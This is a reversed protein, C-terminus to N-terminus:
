KIFQKFFRLEDLNCKEALSDKQNIHFVHERPETESGYDHFEHDIGKESLFKDLEVSQQRVMDHNATMVYLPLIKDTIYNEVKSLDVTAEDQHTAFYLGAIYLLDGASRNDKYYSTIFGGCNTAAARITMNPKRLGFLWRYNDNTYITSYQTVMQGGASDGVLFVNSLDLQYEEANEELWTLVKDLDEINAPFQYDPALRYNFNLVAFGQKALFLCYFQYTEKTGYFFGGGHINVIVPIKDGHEKPLNLDLLNYVGYPGYSVNNIRKVEPIEVPLEADRADDGKKWTKRFESIQEIQKDTYRM